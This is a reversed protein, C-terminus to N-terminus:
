DLRPGHLHSIINLSKSPLSHLWTTHLQSTITPFLGRIDLAMLWFDKGKKGRKAKDRSEERVKERILGEFIERPLIGPPRRTNVGAPDIRRLHAGHLCRGGSYFGKSCWGVICVGGGGREFEEKVLKNKSGRQNAGRLWRQITEEQNLFYSKCKKLRKRSANKTRSKFCIGPTLEYSKPTLELHYMIIIFIIDCFVVILLSM